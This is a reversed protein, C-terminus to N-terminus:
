CQSSHDVVGLMFFKTPFWCSKGSHSQGDEKDLHTETGGKVRSCSKRNVGICGPFSDTQLVPAHIAWHKHRESEEGQGPSDTSVRSVM